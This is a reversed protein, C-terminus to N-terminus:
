AGFDATTESFIEKLGKWHRSYLHLTSVNWVIKGPVVGVAQAIKTLMHIQWSLDAGILGYRVDNSRMHVDAHLVGDRQLYAVFCTCISDKGSAFHMMPNTYYAVARKTDPNAALKSVVNDYQYGNQPSFMLFGYNSNVMGRHDAIIGWTSASEAIKTANPNQSYYWNMEAEVYSRSTKYIGDIDIFGMGEATFECQFFLLEVVRKSGEAVIEGNMLKAHLPRLIQEKIIEENTM